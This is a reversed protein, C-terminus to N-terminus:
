AVLRQQVLAAYGGLEIMTVLMDKSMFNVPENPHLQTYHKSTSVSYKDPNAFWQNVKFDYVFLPWHRGYSCVVYLMSESSGDAERRGYHYFVGFTNSGVFPRKNIVWTRAEKNAVRPAKSM